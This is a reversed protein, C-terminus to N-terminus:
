SRGVPQPSVPLSAAWGPEVPELAQGPRLTLTGYGRTSSNGIGVYGDALDRIALQLLQQGWRPVPRTPDLQEIVL